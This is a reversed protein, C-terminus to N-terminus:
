RLAQATRRRDSDGAGRGARAATRRIRTLGIGHDHFPRREKRLVGPGRGRRDARKGHVTRPQAARVGSRTRRKGSQLPATSRRADPLVFRRSGTAVPQGAPAHPNGQLYEQESIGNAQLIQRAMAPDFRGDAGKFTPTKEIESFVRADSVRFHQQDLRLELLKQLVLSELINDQIRVRQEEPIETGFQESWRAQTDSWAKTAETAAIKEGDVKAAEQGSVGSFDLSNSGGWFIFILAIPFLALWALWKRGHLGDRIRQLM